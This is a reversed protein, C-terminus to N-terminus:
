KIDRSLSSSSIEGCNSAIVLWNCIQLQNTLREPKNSNALWISSAFFFINDDDVTKITDDVGHL